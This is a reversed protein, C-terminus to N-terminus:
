STKTSISFSVFLWITFFQFCSKVKTIVIGYPTSNVFTFAASSTKPTFIEHPKQRTKDTKQRLKIPKKAPKQQPKQRMRFHRDPNKTPTKAHILLKSNAYLLVCQGKRVFTCM